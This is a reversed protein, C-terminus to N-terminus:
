GVSGNGNKLAFYISLRKDGPLCVAQPGGATVIQASRRVCPRKYTLDTVWFSM